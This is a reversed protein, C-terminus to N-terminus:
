FITRFISVIIDEPAAELAKEIPGIDDKSLVNTRINNLLQRAQIAPISPAKGIVEMICIELWSSIQLGTLQVHNPHAASAWNRMNRIYDLHKFGIESIIGTTNCGRVIDWDDIKKLDDLNKIKKKVDDDELTSKFYELDFMAIKERLNNITEDWLYNLAADFLGSACAAIFKSIYFSKMKDIISITNIISPINDIVKKRQTFDVLVNDKPLGLDDLFDTLQNQYEGVTTELLTKNESIVVLSNVKKM